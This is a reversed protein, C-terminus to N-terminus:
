YKFSGVVSTLEGASTALDGAAQETQKACSATSDVAGTMLEVTQNIENTKTVAGNILQSM